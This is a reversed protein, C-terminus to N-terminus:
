KDADGAGSEEFASADPASEESVFEEAASDTENKEQQARSVEGRSRSKSAKVAMSYRADARRRRASKQPKTLSTPAEEDGVLQVLALPSKDGLRRKALKIVRTYGGPRDEFRPAVSEILRHIVSEATFALRGKPEGTRYRRGSAMRLTKARAADPMDAYSSRRDPPIIARDGLLKHIARRARLAAAPEGRATSRRVKISLTVLREFFPRIDKAKPLTTTISGHEVLSQAM